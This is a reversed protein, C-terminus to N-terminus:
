RWFRLALAEVRLSLAVPGSTLAFALTKLCIIVATILIRM